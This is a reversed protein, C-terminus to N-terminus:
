LCRCTPLSTAVTRQMRSGWSVAGGLLMFIQGGTSRRTDPCAAYNADSWGVLTNSADGDYTIGLHRHHYLYTIVRRAAAMHAHTPRSLHRSLQTTAFSIGPQTLCQAYMISGVMARFGAPDPKTDADDWQTLNLTPEMPTGVYNSDTLKFRTAMQEIYKTQTLTIRNKDKTIEM